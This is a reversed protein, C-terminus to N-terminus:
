RNTLVEPFLLIFVNIGDDTYNLVSQFSSGTKGQSRGVSTSGSSTLISPNRPNGQYGAYKSPLSFAERDALFSTNIQFLLSFLLRLCVKQLDWLVM